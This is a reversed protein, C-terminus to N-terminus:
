PQCAKVTFRVDGASNTMGDSNSGASPRKPQPGDFTRRSCISATTAADVEILRFDVDFVGERATLGRHSVLGLGALAAVVAWRPAAYRLRAATARWGELLARGHLWLLRM